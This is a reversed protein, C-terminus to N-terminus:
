QGSSYGLGAQEAAGVILATHDDLGLVRCSLVRSPLPVRWPAALSSCRHGPRAVGCSGRRSPWRAPRQGTCRRNQRHVPGPRRGDGGSWAACGPTMKRRASSSRWRRASRCRGAQVLSMLVDPVAVSTTSSMGEVGSRDLVVIWASNFWYGEVKQLGGEIGVGFEGGLHELAYAARSRAGTRAEEDSMPQPSVGSPADCGEFLWDHHPWVRNFAM